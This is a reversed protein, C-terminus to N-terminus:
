VGPVHTFLGESSELEWGNLSGQDGHKGLHPGLYGPFLRADKRRGRWIESGCSRQAYLM